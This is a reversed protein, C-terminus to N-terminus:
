GQLHLLFHILFLKSFKCVSTLTYILRFRKGNKVVKTPTVDTM